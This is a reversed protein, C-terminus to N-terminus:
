AALLLLVGLHVVLIGATRTGKKLGIVGGVVLNVALVALLLYAGPLPIALPRGTFPNDVPLDAVAVVSEFYQKQVQYIGKDVQALTGLWTLAALLVLIVVTLKMSSFIGVISRLNPM